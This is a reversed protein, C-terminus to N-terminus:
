FKFPRLGLWQKDQEVLRLLLPCHDLHIHPLHHVSAEPFLRRWDENWLARDLFALRRTMSNIGHNSTFNPCSFGLDVLGNSDLWDVFSTSVGGGSSGEDGRLMFNFDEIFLWPGYSRLADLKAWLSRRVWPNPIANIAFLDWAKMGESVM